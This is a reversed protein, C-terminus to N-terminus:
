KEDQFNKGINDQVETYQIQTSARIKVNCHDSSKNHKKQANKSM